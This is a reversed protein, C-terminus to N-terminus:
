IGAQHMGAALSCIYAFGVRNDLGDVIDAHTDSWGLNHVLWRMFGWVAMSASFLAVAAHTAKWGAPTWGQQGQHTLCYSTLWTCMDMLQQRLAVLENFQSRNKVRDQLIWVVTNCVDAVTYQDVDPYAEATEYCMIKGVCFLTYMKLSSRVDPHPDQGTNFGPHGPQQATKPLDTDVYVREAAAVAAQRHARANAILKETTSAASMQALAAAGFGLDVNKSLQITKQTCEELSTSLERYQDFLKDRNAIDPINETLYALSTDLKAHAAQQDCASSVLCGVVMGRKAANTDLSKRENADPRMWFVSAKPNVSQPAKSALIESYVQLQQDHVQLM